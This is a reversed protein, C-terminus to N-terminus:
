NIMLEDSKTPLRPGENSYRASSLQSCTSSYHYNAVTHTLSNSNHKQYDTEENIHENETLTM